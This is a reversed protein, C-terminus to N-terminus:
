AGARLTDRAAGEEERARAQEADLATGVNNFDM